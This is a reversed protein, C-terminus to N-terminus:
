EIETIWYGKEKILAKKALEDAKFKDIDIKLATEAALQPSAAFGHIVMKGNENIRWFYDDGNPTLPELEVSLTRTM